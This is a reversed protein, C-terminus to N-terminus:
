GPSWVLNLTNISVSALKCSVGPEMTRTCDSPDFRDTGLDTMSVVNASTSFSLLTDMVMAFIEQWSANRGLPCGIGPNVIWDIDANWVGTLTDSSSRIMMAFM